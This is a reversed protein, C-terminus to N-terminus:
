VIGFNQDGHDDVVELTTDEGKKLVQDTEKNEVGKEKGTEKGTEGSKEEGTEEGTEEGVKEGTEMQDRQDGKEMVLQFANVSYGGLVGLLYIFLMNRVFM